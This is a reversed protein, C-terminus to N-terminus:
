AVDGQGKGMSMIKIKSNDINLRKSLDIFNNM